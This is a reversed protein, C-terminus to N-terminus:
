KKEIKMTMLVRYKVTNVKGQDDWALEIMNSWKRAHFIGPGVKCIGGNTVIFATTDDTIGVGCAHPQFRISYNLNTVTVTM